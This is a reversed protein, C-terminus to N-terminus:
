GGYYGDYRYSQVGGEFCNLVSLVDAEVPLTDRLQAYATRLEVQSAEGFRVCIVAADVLPAIYQTDVVPILPASDIVVVDFATRANAVLDRFADSQLPADTPVNARRSGLIIGLSSLPDLVYFEEAPDTGKADLDAASSQGAQLYELLGMGPEERIFQHISPNRLDADILLTRKGALAYTRALSLATTSKGEAPIASTVVVVAGGTRDRLAQDVSARLKRFAEAFQTMPEKSVKDALTDRGQQYSLKPVVAGVKVPVINGLQNASTVGGYYFEKLLALGVGLVSALTLAMALVLTKNPYSPQSPVLAESIMRSDAIQVVAQAELDRLRSIVNDYLQQAAIADRNLGYIETVTQSSLDRGAMAKQIEDLIGAEVTTEQQVDQKLDSVATRARDQLRKDLDALARDLDVRTTSDAGTGQLQRLLGQREQELTVLAQDSIRDALMSWNQQAIATNAADLSQRLEGLRGTVDGLQGKLAALQETGVEESLRDINDAVYRRLSENSRALRQSAKDREERLLKSANNSTEIRSSVQADIYTLAHTNAINASQEPDTSTVQVGVLYTLGRRRVTLADDFKKLSENLLAQGTPPPPLEMGLVARFKDFLGVSRGFEESKHLKAKEITKLALRSSKLIEVETEIQTTEVNSNAAAAVTPNLLNTEQPNVRILAMATYQPTTRIVFVFALALVIVVTMVILRLQRRLIAFVERLDVIDENLQNM